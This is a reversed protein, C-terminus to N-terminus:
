IVVSLGDALQTREEHRRLFEKAYRKAVHYVGLSHSFRSHDASPYVLYSFGLQRVRRLRQMIPCDLLTLSSGEVSIMGWVEDKLDMDRSPNEGTLKVSNIYEDTLGISQLAEDIAEAFAANKAEEFWKQYLRRASPLGM